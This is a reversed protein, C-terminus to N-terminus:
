VGRAAAQALAFGLAGSQSILGIASERVEPPPAIVMFTMRAHRICNLVGICNPGILPLRSDHALQALREQEAIREPKGIEAYGSAFVIVGGAGAATCEAVLGEVAERAAAIVACDVREPVAGISPYCRHEGIREHRANVPYIRGDYDKLNLLVREGFSAPRASAGIVAISGPHLLRLLDARRYVPRAIATMPRKPRQKARGSQLSHGPEAYEVAMGALLFGTTRGPSSRM